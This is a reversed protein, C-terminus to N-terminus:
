HTSSKGQQLSSHIYHNLQHLGNNQDMSIRSSTFQDAPLADETINPYLGLPVQELQCAGNRSHQEFSLPIVGTDPSSHKRTVLDLENLISDFMCEDLVLERKFGPVSSLPTHQPWTCASVQDNMVSPQSTNRLPSLTHFMDFSNALSSIQQALISIEARERESYEFTEQSTPSQSPTLLSPQIPLAHEPVHHLHAVSGGQPLELLSFDDQHLTCDAPSECTDSVSLCDPVLRADSTCAPFDYSPSSSSLTSSSSLPGLAAQDFTQEAASPLSESPSQHCTLSAQTYSYYSPSGEPSSLLQDSYGHVDVLLDHSLSSCSSSPTYPPTFMAPSECLPVPSCDGQFAVYLQDQESDRRKRACPEDSQSSSMRQRKSCKGSKYSPVQQTAFHCSDVPGCVDSNIKQQLFRAETESYSCLCRNSSTNKLQVSM